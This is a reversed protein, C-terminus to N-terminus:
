ALRKKAETIRREKVEPKKDEMQKADVDKLIQEINRQEGQKLIEYGAAATVPLKKGNVEVYGANASDRIHQFIEELKDLQLNKDFRLAVIIEDSKDGRRFMYEVDRRFIYDMDRTSTKLSNAITLLAEDGVPHGYKNNWTRLDDLDLAIIMVAHLPSQRGSHELSPKFNLEKILDGLKKDLSDHKFLKTVPDIGLKEVKNALKIATDSLGQEILEQRQFLKRALAVYQSETIENDRLARELLGSDISNSSDILRSLKAEPTEFSSDNNDLSKEINNM